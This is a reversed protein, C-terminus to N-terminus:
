VCFISRHLAALGEPNMERIDVHFEDAFLEPLPTDDLRVLLVRVSQGAQRARSDCLHLATRLEFMTWSRASYTASWFVLYIGSSRVAESVMASIADNPPYTPVFPDEFAIWAMYKLIEASIDGASFLEDWVVDAGQEILHEVLPRVLQSDGRAYSVFVRPAMFWQRIERRVEAAQEPDDAALHEALRLHVLQDGRARLSECLAAILLQLKCRIRTPANNGRADAVLVSARYHLKHFQVRASSGRAEDYEKM